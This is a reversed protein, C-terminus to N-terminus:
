LDRAWIIMDVGVILDRDHVGDDRGLIQSHLWVLPDEGESRCASLVRDLAYGGKRGVTLVTDSVLLLHFYVRGQLHGPMQEGSTRLIRYILEGAENRYWGRRPMSVAHQVAHPSLRRTRHRFRMRPRLEISAQVPPQTGEATSRYGQGQWAGSAPGAVEPNVVPTPTSSGADGTVTTLDEGM